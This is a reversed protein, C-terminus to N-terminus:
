NDETEKLLVESLLVDNENLFKTIIPYILTFIGPYTRKIGHGAKKIGYLCLNDKKQKGILVFTKLDEFKILNDDMGSFILTPPLRVDSNLYLYYPSFTQHYDSVRDYGYGQKDNRIVPSIAIIFNPKSSVTLNTDNEQTLYSSFALHGGASIGIAIIEDKNINLSDSNNRLFVIADKVDELADFPTSEHKKKTRYEVIVSTVGQSTLGYAVENLQNWSFDIWGGGSLFIACATKQTYINNPKLVKLKLNISDNVSKYVIQSKLGTPLFILFIIYTLTRM